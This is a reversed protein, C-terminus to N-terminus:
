QQIPSRFDNYVDTRLRIIEICEQYFQEGRAGSQANHATIFTHKFHLEDFEGVCVLSIKVEIEPNCRIALYRAHMKSGRVHCRFVFEAIGNSRHGTCKNCKM